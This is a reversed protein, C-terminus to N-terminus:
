LDIAAGAALFTGQSLGADIFLRSRKGIRYHLAAGLVPALSWAPVDENEKRLEELTMEASRSLEASGLISDVRAILPLRLRGSFRLLALGLAAYAAIRGRQLARWRGQAALMYTRLDIRGQGSTSITAVPIGGFYLRQEDQLSFPLTCRLYSASVGIAFRGAGLRRWLGTSLFAGQSDMDVKPKYSIVTFDDLLPALLERAEDAVVRAALREVPSVLPQLTWPGLSLQWEWAAAEQSGAGAALLLLFLSAKKIRM